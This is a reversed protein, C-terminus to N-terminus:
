SNSALFSPGLNGIYRGRDPFSVVTSANYPGDKKILGGADTIDTFLQLMFQPPTSRVNHQPAHDIGFVKSLREIAETEEVDSKGSNKTKGKRTRAGSVPDPLLNFIVLLYCLLLVYIDTLGFNTKFIWM